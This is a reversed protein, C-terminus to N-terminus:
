GTRAISLLALSLSFTIALDFIMPTYFFYRRSLTAHGVNAVAYLLIVPVALVTPLASAIQWFLVAEVLCNLAAMLGSGIFFSWYSRTLGQFTFPSKMADIVAAEGRGHRPKWLVIALGHALGQVAAVIAATRLMVATM